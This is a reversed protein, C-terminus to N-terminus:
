IKTTAVLSYTSELGNPDYATIVFFYTGPSLDTITVQTATGDNLDILYPYDGEKAGYYIRYGAIESTPLPTNDIRTLPADWTLTVASATNLVPDTSSSSSSGDNLVPDTSSSSSGGDNLVPDTSSSSSGGGGGCATILTTFLVSLVVAKIASKVPRKVIM